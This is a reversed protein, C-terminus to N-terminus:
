RKLTLKRSEAAAQSNEPNTKPNATPHVDSWGARVTITEPTSAGVDSGRGVTTGGVTIAVAM